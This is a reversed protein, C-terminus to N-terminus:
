ENVLDNYKRKELILHGDQNKLELIDSHRFSMIRGSYFTTGDVNTIKSLTFRAGDYNTSRIVM